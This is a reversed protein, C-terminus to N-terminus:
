RTTPSGPSRTPSGPRPISAGNLKATEILSYAIAAAHGGDESGMFLYNKRGLAIGRM